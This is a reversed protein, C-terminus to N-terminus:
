NLISNPNVNSIALLFGRWHGLFCKGLCRESFCFLNIISDPCFNSIPVKLCLFYAKFPQHIPAKVKWLFSNRWLYLFFIVNEFVFIFSLNMMQNFEYHTFSLWLFLVLTSFNDSSLYSYASDFLEWCILLHFMLQIM